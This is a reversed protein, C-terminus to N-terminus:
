IQKKDTITILCDDPKKACEDHIISGVSKARIEGSIPNKISVIDSIVDANVTSYEFCLDCDKEFTCNILTLDEAYCLPQKGSIHCNILKLNKSHWGLYEGNLSSNEVTVNHAEWFADKSDFDSNKIVVNKCNQFSYNGQLKLNDVEIDTSNMFIYDGNTVTCNRIQLKKCDWMTEKADTFTVKDLCLNEMKRFMKPAIVMTDTMSLNKSYWIAARAGEKFTCKSIKCDDVHWFPYKGNFVSDSCIINSCEKIGSEGNLIEINRLTLDRKYFLPREGEFTKNEITEM